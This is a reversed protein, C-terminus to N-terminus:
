SRGVVSRSRSLSYHSDSEPSRTALRSRERDTCLASCSEPPQCAIIANGSFTSLSQQATRRM